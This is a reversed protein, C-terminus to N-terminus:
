LGPQDAPLPRRRCGGLPWVCIGTSFQRLNRYLSWLRSIGRIRGAGHRSAIRNVGRSGAM